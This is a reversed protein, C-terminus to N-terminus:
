GIIEQCYKVYEPLKEPPLERIKGIGFHKNVDLAKDIGHKASVSTLAVRADEETVKIEPIVAAKPAVIEAKEPMHDKPPRGRRPKDELVKDIEKSAKQMTEVVSEGPPKTINVGVNPFKNMVMQGGLKTLHTYIEEYSEGTVTITIM